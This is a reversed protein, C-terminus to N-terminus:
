RVPVPSADGPTVQAGFRTGLNTLYSELTGTHGIVFRSIFRFVPNYVEGHETITVRSGTGEPQVSYAWAGGFPLGEGVIRTVLRFPPEFAEVEMTLPGSSSVETFRPPAGSDVADVLVTKVDSRWTPASVFDAITIFVSEPPAPLVISRTAVHAVPLQAGLLAVAIGALVLVAVVAGIVKLM